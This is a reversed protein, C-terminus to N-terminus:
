GYRSDCNWGMQLPQTIVRVADSDESFLILNKFKAESVSWMHCAALGSYLPLCVRKCEVVHKMIDHYTLSNGKAAFEAAIADRHAKIEERANKDSIKELFAFDREVNDIVSKKCQEKTLGMEDHLPDIFANGPHFKDGQAVSTGPPFQVLVSACIESPPNQPEVPICRQQAISECEM